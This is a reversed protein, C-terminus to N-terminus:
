LRLRFLVSRRTPEIDTVWEQQDRVAGVAEWAGGEKAADIAFQRGGGNQCHLVIRNGLRVCSLKPKITVNLDPWQALGLVSAVQYIPDPSDWSRFAIMLGTDTDFRFETASTTGALLRLVANTGTEVVSLKCGTIPDTDLVAGTQFSKLAQPAAYLNGGGGVLTTKEVTPPLGGISELTTTQEYLFWGDGV